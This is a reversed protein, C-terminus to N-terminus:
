GEALASESFSVGYETYIAEAARLAAPLTGVEFETHKRCLSEHTNEDSAFGMYGRFQGDPSRDIYIFNDASM